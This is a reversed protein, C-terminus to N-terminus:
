FRNQNILRSPPTPRCRVQRLLLKIARQVAVKAQYFCSAYRTSSAAQVNGEAMAVGNRGSLPVNLLMLSETDDSDEKFCRSLLM